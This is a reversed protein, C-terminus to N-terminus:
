KKGFKFPNEFLNGLLRPDTRVGGVPTLESGVIPDTRVGGKKKRSKARVVGGPTRWSTGWTLSPDLNLSYCYQPRKSTESEGRTDFRTIMNLELAKRVYRRQNRRSFGTFWTMQGYSLKTTHFVHFGLTLRCILLVTQLIGPSVDGCRMLAHLLNNQIQTYHNKEM